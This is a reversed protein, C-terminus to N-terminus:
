RVTDVKICQLGRLKSEQYLGFNCSNHDVTYWQTGGPTKEGVAYKDKQKKHVAQLPNEINQFM